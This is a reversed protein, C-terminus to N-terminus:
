ATTRAAAKPRHAFLLPLLLLFVQIMRSNALAYTTNGVIPYVIPLLDAALWNNSSSRRGM